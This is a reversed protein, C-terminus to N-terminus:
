SAAGPTSLRAGLWARARRWSKEVSSPSLDLERAVEPVTLGGFFRLEVIRAGRADLAELETLAADLEVVDIDALAAELDSSSLTVREWDGGRRAAKRRRARDILIQRMATAAVACFHERDRWRSGSDEANKMRLWAEHVLGTPQLSHAAKQAVMRAALHRLQEYVLPVLAAPDAAASPRGSM